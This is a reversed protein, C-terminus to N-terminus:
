RDSQSKDQAPPEAYRASVDSATCKLTAANPAISDVESYPVYLSDGGFGLVGGHHIEFYKTDSPAFEGGDGDGDSEGLASPRDNGEIAAVAIAPGFDLGNTAGASPAGASSQLAAGQSLQVGPGRAEDPYATGTDDVESETTPAQPAAAASFLRHITGLKDGDSSFVDMGRRLTYTTM